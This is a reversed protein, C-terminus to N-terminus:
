PAPAPGCVDKDSRRSAMPPHSVGYWGVASSRKAALRTRGTWHRRESGLKAVAAGAGAVMPKAGGTRGSAAPSRLWPGGGIDQDLRQPIPLVTVDPPASPSRVIVDGLTMALDAGVNAQAPALRQGNKGDYLVM